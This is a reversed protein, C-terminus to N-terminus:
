VQNIEDCSDTKYNDCPQIDKPLNRAYHLGKEKDQFYSFRIGTISSGYFWPYIAPSIIGIDWLASSRILYM